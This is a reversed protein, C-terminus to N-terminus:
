QMESKKGQMKHMQMRWKTNEHAYHTHLKMKSLMKVEMENM